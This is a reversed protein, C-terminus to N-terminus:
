CELSQGKDYAAAAAAAALSARVGGRLAATLTVECRQIAEQVPCLSKDALRSCNLCRFFTQRSGCVRNSLQARQVVDAAAGIKVQVCVAACRSDRPSGETNQYKARPIQLINIVQLRATM